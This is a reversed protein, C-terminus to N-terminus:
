VAKQYIGDPYEWFRVSFGRDRQLWGRNEAQTEGDELGRQSRRGGTLGHIWHTAAM